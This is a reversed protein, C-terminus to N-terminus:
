LEHSDEKDEIFVVSKSYYVEISSTHALFDYVSKYKKMLTKIIELTRIWLVQNIFWNFALSLELPTVEKSYARRSIQLLQSVPSDILKCILQENCFLSCETTDEKKFHQQVYLIHPNSEKQFIWIPNRIINNM